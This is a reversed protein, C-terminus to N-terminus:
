ITFSRMGLHLAGVFCPVLVLLAVSSGRFGSPVFGDALGRSFLASSVLSWAEKERQNPYLILPVPDSARLVCGLAICLWIVLWRSAPCGHLFGCAFRVQIREIGRFFITVAYINSQVGAQDNSYALDLPQCPPNCPWRPGFLRANISLSNHSARSRMIATTVLQAQCQLCLTPSPTLCRWGRQISDTFWGKLFNAIPAICTHYSEPM